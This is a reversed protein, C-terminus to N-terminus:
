KFTETYNPEWASIVFAAGVIAWILGLATLTGLSADYATGLQPNRAPQGPDGQLSLVFANIIGGVSGIIGVGLLIVHTM